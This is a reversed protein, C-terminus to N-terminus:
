SNNGPAAGPVALSYSTSRGGGEDRRLVGLRVRETIDRLATDTSVETLKPQM